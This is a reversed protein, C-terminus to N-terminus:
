ERAERIGVSVVSRYPLTQLSSVSPEGDLTGVIADRLFEEPHTARPTFYFRGAGLLSFFVSQMVSEISASTAQFRVQGGRLPVQIGPEGEFRPEKQWERGHLPWQVRPGVAAAAAYFPLSHGTFEWRVYRGSVASSPFVIVPRGWPPERTIATALTTDWGASVVADSASSYSPSGFAVDDDVKVTWALGLAQGWVLMGIAEIDTKTAGLDVDIRLPSTAGSTKYRNFLAWTGLNNQSYGSAAANNVTFTRGTAHNAYGFLAPGDSLAM